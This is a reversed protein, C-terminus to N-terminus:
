CSRDGIETRSYGFKRLGTVADQIASRLEGALGVMLAVAGVGGTGVQRAFVRMILHTLVARQDNEVVDPAPEHRRCAGLARGRLTASDANRGVAAHCDAAPSVGDGVRM